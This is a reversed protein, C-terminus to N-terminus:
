IVTDYDYSKLLTQRKLLRRQEYVAKALKSGNIIAKTLTKADSSTTGLAEKVQKPSNCNVGNLILRNEAIKDISKKMEFQVGKRYVLLRNQQYCLSLELNMIDRKYLESKM